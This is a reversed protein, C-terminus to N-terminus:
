DQEKEMKEKEVKGLVTVYTFKGGKIKLRSETVECENYHQVLEILLRPPITFQLSEGEYKSQKIETFWGSVGKGTIKFKGKKINVIVDSGETNESSFIEAKEVAEKLGKPLTLSRGKVQLVKSIDDSPYDDVEYRCSLVLGDSDRFHIWRKTESFEVMGLPIIHKLSEKRILIPKGVDTLIRFRTVQHNDCAEIHKPTIHVCTMAFQAENNGACPQVIAVADAFNEPLKKWKKPKDVAEIPLLIDREMNIGSRKQKAKILLQTKNDNLEIELEEEKLKRLISIFPMAPIAGEIHLLSKQLCAIEDNFTGVTKGKFVFCSAQEVVEKASVSLGPLVSELQKLFEERNIRM